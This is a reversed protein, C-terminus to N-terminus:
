ARGWRAFWRRIVYNRGVSVLTYIATVGASDWGSMPLNWLPVIVFQMVAWSLLTAAFTNTCSELFSHKRSQM